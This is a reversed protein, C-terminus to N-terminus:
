GATSILISDTTNYVEFWEGVDDDVSAPNQKIENIIIDGPALIKAGNGFSINFALLLLMLILLNKM